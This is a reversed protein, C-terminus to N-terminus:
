NAKGDIKMRELGSLTFSEVENGDRDFIRCTACLKAGFDAEVSVDLEGRQIGLALAAGRAGLKALGRNVFPGNGQRICELVENDTM